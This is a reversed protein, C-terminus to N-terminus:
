IIYLILTKRRMIVTVEYDDDKITKEFEPHEINDSFTALLENRIYDEYQDFIEKVLENNTNLTLFIRDNVDFGADKRFVQCQRIIDRLIGEKQLEINIEVNLAIEKDDINAFQINTKPKYEIIFLSSDLEKDYTPLKIKKNEKVAKVYKEMEEYPINKLLDKVINVDSKLVTGAEKFNLTLYPEKLLNMNEIMELKKVNLEACIIDKMITILDDKKAEIYLTKLPQRVKIQNENRIKLATTIINRGKEIIEIINDDLEFQSVKPWNSLHVSEESNQDYEKIVNQWIYECIFPTM